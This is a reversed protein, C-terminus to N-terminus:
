YNKKHPLFVGFTYLKFRFSLGLIFSVFSFRRVQSEFPSVESEDLSNAIHTRFVHFGDM